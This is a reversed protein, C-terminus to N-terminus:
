LIMRREKIIHYRFLYTFNVIKIIVSDLIVRYHPKQGMRICINKSPPIKSMSCVRTYLKIALFVGKSEALMTKVRGKHSRSCIKSEAKIVSFATRAVIWSGSSSSGPM